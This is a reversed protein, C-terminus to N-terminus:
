DAWMGVIQWGEDPFGVAEAVRASAINAHDHLYTAVAGDALVHRTAQAVLLRALGKSRHAPETGVSLEHGYADHIKRGVGAQYADDPGLAVLVEGNFPRLWEPVRPDSRPLWTGIESSDMPARCWRFVGYGLHSKPRDLAAPLIAGALVLADAVSAARTVRVQVDNALAPPVSLVGGSDTLVGAVPRIAGDWGPKERLASGVVRLRGPPPPWEGLWSRLHAVLREAPKM